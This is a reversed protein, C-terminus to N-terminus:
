SYDRVHLSIVGYEEVLEISYGPRVLQQDSPLSKNAEVCISIINDVINAELQALTYTGTPCFVAVDNELISAAVEKGITVQDFRTLTVAKKVFFNEATATCDPYPYSVYYTEDFYSAIRYITRETEMQATTINYYTYRIYDPNPTSFVPDDWTTDMQYWDGNLHILNWMHHEGNQTIQGIQLIANIGSRYMLYQFARAYSECVGTRYLLVGLLDHNHAAKYTTDYDCSLILRDHLLRVRDAYPMEDTIGDLLEQVREELQTQLAVIEDASLGYSQTMTHLYTNEGMTWYSYSYSLSLWFVEPHDDHYYRLVKEFENLTLGYGHMDVDSVFATVQRGLHDYAEALNPDEAALLQRGYYQSPDLPTLAPPIVPAQANCAAEDTVTLHNIVIRGKAKPEIHVADLSVTEPLASGDWTYCGKV